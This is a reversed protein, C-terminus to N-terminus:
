MPVEYGLCKISVIGLDFTSKDTPDFGVLCDNTTLASTHHDTYKWESNSLWRHDGSCVLKRGDVLEIEYAIKSTEWKDLITTAVLHRYKSGDRKELGYIEEGISIDKIKKYSNDTLLIPTNADVCFKCGHYCGTVPNWSLKAWEIHDNTFNFTPRYPKGTRSKPEETLLKEKKIKRVEQYAQNM